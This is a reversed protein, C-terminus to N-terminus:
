HVRGSSTQGDLRNPGGVCIIRYRGSTVKVTRLGDSPRTRGTRVVKWNDRSNRKQVYFKYGKNRLPRIKITIKKGVIKAGCRVPKTPPYKAAEAPAAIFLGAGLASAAATLSSRVLVPVSHAKRSADSGPRSPLRYKHPLGRNRTAAARLGPSRLRRGYDAPKAVDQRGCRNTEIVRERAARPHM